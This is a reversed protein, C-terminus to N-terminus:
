QYKYEKLDNFVSTTIRTASPSVTDTKGYAHIGAVYGNQYFVPSGSDGGRTNIDYYFDYTGINHLKSSAGAQSLKSGYGILTFTNSSLTSNSYAGFGFSGVSTVDTPLKIVGYDYRYAGTSDWESPRLFKAPNSITPSAVSYGNAKAGIHCTISKAKGYTPHNLNHAATAVADPGIMFGTGYNEKNPSNEFKIVLRVVRQDYTSTMEALSARTAKYNEPAEKFLDIGAGNEIIRQHELPIRVTAPAEPMNVPPEVLTNETNASAAFSMGFCFVAALMFSMIKKSFKLGKRTMDHGRKQEENNDFTLRNVNKLARGVDYVVKRRFDLPIKRVYFHAHFAEQCVLLFTSITLIYAGIFQM